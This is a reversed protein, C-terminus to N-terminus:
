KRARRLGLASFISGVKAAISVVWRPLVGGAVAVLDLAETESSAIKRVGVPTVSASGAGSSTLQSNGTEAICDQGLMRSLNDAFQSVIKESVEAMIGSRGFQAVRGSLSVDTVVNVKTRQDVPVAKVVVVASAQGQTGRGTGEITARYANNDQDTIRATGKFEATIPGLKVKVVGRYEDGEAEQLQAGPFCPAIREVDVLTSWVRAIPANVEFDNVLKM